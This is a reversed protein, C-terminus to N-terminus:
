PGVSELHRRPQRLRHTPTPTRTPTVTRTATPTATPTPTVTGGPAGPVVLLTMSSARFTATFRNGAVPQDPARVVASPSAASYQFVQAATSAAFTEITVQSTLTGFTKNVAMITLAGDWARVAAYVSLQTEDTSTALVGAEGFGHGAGDANRYM